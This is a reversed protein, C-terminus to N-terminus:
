FNRQWHWWPGYLHSFRGRGGGPPLGSPSYALGADDLFVHATIFQVEGGRREVEHIPFLGAWQPDDFRQSADQPVAAMYARLSSESLWLRARLTWHSQSQLVILLLLSPWVLWRVRRYARRPGASGRPGIRLPACDLEETLSLVNVAARLLWILSLAAATVFLAFWDPFDIGANSGFWLGALGWVGNTTLEMNPPASAIAHRRAWSRLSGIFLLVGVAFFGATGGLRTFVLTVAGIVAMGLLMTRLSFQPWRAADSTGRSKVATLRAVVAPDFIEGPTPNKRASGM